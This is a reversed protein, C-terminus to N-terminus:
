TQRPEPYEFDNNCERNNSTYLPLSTDSAPTVPMLSLSGSSRSVNTDLTLFIAEWGSQTPKPM